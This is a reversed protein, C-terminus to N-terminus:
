NTKEFNYKYLRKIFEMFETKSMINKACNCYKCCAVSNDKTYGKLSDVRDIGNYKIFKDSVKGKNNRDTAFNSNNLGCYCCNQISIKKFDDFSIDSTIGMKKSRKIITSQYLQKWIADTRDINKNHPILKNCGCSKSSGKRISDGSTTHHKGCDCICDYRIQNREGRTDSMKLITLKGYKNGVINKIKM